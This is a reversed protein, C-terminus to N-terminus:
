PRAATRLFAGARKNRSDVARADCGLRRGGACRRASLGDCRLVTRGAGVRLWLGAAGIDGQDSYENEKEETYIEAKAFATAQINKIIGCVGTSKEESKM